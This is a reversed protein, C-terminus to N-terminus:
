TPKLGGVVQEDLNARLVEIFADFQKIGARISGIMRGAISTAMEHSIPIGDNM